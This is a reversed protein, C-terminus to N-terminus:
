DICRNRHWIQLDASAPECVVWLLLWTHACCDVFLFISARGDSCNRLCALVEQRWTSERMVPARLPWWTLMSLHTTSRVMMSGTCSCPAMLNAPADEELCVRCTAAGGDGISAAQSKPSDEAPDPAAAHSPKEMMPQSELPGLRQAVTQHRLRVVDDHCPAVPARISKVGISHAIAANRAWWGSTAVCIGATRRERHQSGFAPVSLSAASVASPLGPERLPLTPCATCLPVGNCMPIAVLCCRLFALRQGSVRGCSAPPRGRRREGTSGPGHRVRERPTQGSVYIGRCSAPSLDCPQMSSSAAMQLAYLRIPAGSPWAHHPYRLRQWQLVACENPDRQCVRSGTAQFPNQLPCCVCRVYPLGLRLHSITRCQSHASTM